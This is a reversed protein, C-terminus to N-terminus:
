NNNNVYNYIKTLDSIFHNVISLLRDFSELANSVSLHELATQAEKAKAVMRKIKNFYGNRVVEEISQEKSDEALKYLLRKFNATKIENINNLDKIINQIGTVLGHVLEYIIDYTNNFKAKNNEKISKVLLENANALYSIPDYINEVFYSQLAKINEEKNKHFKNIKTLLIKAQKQMWDAGIEGVLHFVENLQRTMFGGPDGSSENYGSEDYFNFRAYVEDKLQPYCNIVAEIYIGEVPETLHTLGCFSSAAEKKSSLIEKMYSIISEDEYKYISSDPKDDFTINGFCDIFQKWEGPESIPAIANAIYTAVKKLDIKFVRDTFKTDTDAM